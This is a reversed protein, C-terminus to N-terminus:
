RIVSKNKVTNISLEELEFKLIEYQKSLEEKNTYLESNLNLRYEIEIMEEKISYKEYLCELKEKSFKIKDICEIILKLNKGELELIDDISQCFILDFIFNEIYEDYESYEDNGLFQLNKNIITAILDYTYVSIIADSDYFELLSRLSEDRDNLRKFFIKQSNKEM